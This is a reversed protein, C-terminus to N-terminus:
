QMVWKGQEDVGYTEAGLLLMMERIEPWNPITETVAQFNKLKGVPIRNMRFPPVLGESFLIELSMMGRVLQITVRSPNALKIQTRANVLTPNSGDPDLFVLVRDLAKSGIHTIFLNLETRSLDLTGTTEDFFVSLGITSDVLSDGVIKLREDLLNNLDLRAAEFGGSLGFAKGTTVVLNGGIGGGLVNMALNQIKFANREFGIYTSFNRITVFGLDLLDISIRQGKTGVSRLQALVDTPNFVRSGNRTKDAWDLRKRIGLYGNMNEVRIDDRIVGLGQGGAKVQVAIMGREKKVVSLGIQAQGSGVLGAGKLIEQFEDLTVQVNAQVNAFLNGVVSSMQPKAELLERVGVVKGKISVGAGRTALRMKRIDVEDFKRVALDLNVSSQFLRNLPFGPALRIDDVRVDTKIEALPLAGPSFEFSMTATANNVRHQAFVGSVSRAVVRTNISLPLDLQEIDEKQPVRGSATFSVEVEGSPQIGQLLQVAEGSVRNLLGGVNMTPIELKVHFAQTDQRYDGVSRVHFLSGSSLRLEDLSFIQRVLDEHTKTSLTIDDLSARLAPTDYRVDRMALTLTDQSRMNALAFSSTLSGAFSSGLTMGLQGLRVMGGYAVKSLNLTGSVRGSMERKIAQYETSLNVHMSKLKGDVGLSEQAFSIDHLNVQVTMQADQPVYGADVHGTAKVMVTDPTTFKQIAVGPLLEHPILSLIHDIHPEVKTTLSVEILSPEDRQPKVFGQMEMDVLKGLKVALQKMTLEQIQHNGVVEMEVSVPLTIPSFAGMAPLTPTGALTMHVSVPGLAFYDGSLQLNVDRLGYNQVMAQKMGVMLNLTASEPLNDKIALDSVNVTIDMPLLSVDFQPLDLALKKLALDVHTEGQFGSTTLTGKVAVHPALIGSVMVDRFEMPVFDEVLRHVGAVDVQADQVLLDVSPDGLFNTVDGSLTMTLVPPSAVTFVNVHLAQTSLNALLNFDLDFPLRLHKGELEVVIQAVRVSGDVNATDGAVGASVAVNLERLAISLDQSIILSLNGQNIM